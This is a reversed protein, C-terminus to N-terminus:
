LFIPPGGEPFSSSCARGWGGCTVGNSDIAQMTECDTGWM